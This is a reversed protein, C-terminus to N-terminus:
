LNALQKIKFRMNMRNSNTERYITSPFYNRSKNFQRLSSIKMEEFKTANEGREKEREFSWFAFWNRQICQGSQLNLTKKHLTFRSFTIQFHCFCKRRSKNPNPKDQPQWEPNWETPWDSSNKWKIKETKSQNVSEVPTEDTCIIKEQNRQTNMAKITMTTLWSHYMLMIITRCYPQVNHSQLQTRTRPPRFLQNLMTM